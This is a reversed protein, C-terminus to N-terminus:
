CAHARPASTPSRRCQRAPAPARRRPRDSFARRRGPDRDPPAGARRAAAARNPIARCQNALAALLIGIDALGAGARPVATGAHDRRDCRRARRHRRCPRHGHHGGQAGAPRGFRPRARGTDPRPPLPRAPHLSQAPGDGRDRRHRHRAGTPLGLLDIGATTINEGIDGPAIDFGKQRLEDFLEAQVLHVQRLNPQHPDVAVRSRHKVTVGAHADGEVGLGAVLTVFLARKKSFAHGASRSVALVSAPM